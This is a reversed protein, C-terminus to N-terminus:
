KHGWTHTSALIGNVLGGTLRESHLRRNQLCHKCVWCWRWHTMDGAENLDDIPWEWWIDAYFWYSATITQEVFKAWPFPNFSQVITIWTLYMCRSKDNAYGSNTVLRHNSQLKCDEQGVLTLTLDGTLQWQSMALRGWWKLDMTLVM